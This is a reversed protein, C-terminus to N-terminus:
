KMCFYHGCRTVVPETFEKRCILCAFPVEEEEEEQAVAVAAGDLKDLQWGAM